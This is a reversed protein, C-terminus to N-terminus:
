AAQGGRARRFLEVEADPKERREPGGTARPNELHSFVEKFDAVLFENMQLLLNIEASVTSFHHAKEAVANPCLESPDRTEFAQAGAASSVLRLASPSLRLSM